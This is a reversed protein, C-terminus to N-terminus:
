KTSKAAIVVTYVPAETNEPDPMNGVYVSGTEPDTVVAYPHSGAPLTQIVKMRSADIVSMNNGQVNGV